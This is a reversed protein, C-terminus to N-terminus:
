SEATNNSQFAHSIYFGYILITVNDVCRLQMSIDQPDQYQIFPSSAMPTVRVM